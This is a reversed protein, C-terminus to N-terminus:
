LTRAVACDQQVFDTITHAHGGVDTVRVIKFDDTTPTPTALTMGDVGATTVFNDTGFALADASGTLTVGPSLVLPLDATVLARFAPQAAGGSIAGAWVENASQTALGLTIALTGSTTVPSGAVSETFIGPVAITLGVSSVYSLSPIDAAVLARFTPLAAGGSSPGALVLNMAETNWTVGFDVIATGPSGSVAFQSPMSLSVSTVSGGGIFGVAQDPYDQEDIPGYVQVGYLGSAAYFFYHGNGDTTLPNPLVSTAVTGGSVWTGPNTFAQVTM